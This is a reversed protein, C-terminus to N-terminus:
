SACPMCSAWSNEIGDEAAGFIEGIAQGLHGVLFELDADEGAALDHRRELHQVRHLVARDLHAM